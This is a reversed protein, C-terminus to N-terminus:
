NRNAITLEAVIRVRDGEKQLSGELINTVGLKRGVARLDDNKSKFQFSSARGVVRVGPVKGLYDILQGALGDSFYEQDKAVSLDTFPLVAISPAPRRRLIGKGDDLCYTPALPQRWSSHLELL